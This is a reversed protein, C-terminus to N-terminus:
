VVINVSVYLVIAIYIIGYTRGYIIVIIAVYNYAHECDPKLEAPCLVKAKCNDHKLLITDRRCRPNLTVSLEHIQLMNFLQM